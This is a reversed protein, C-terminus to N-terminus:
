LGGVPKAAVQADFTGAIVTTNGPLSAALDRGAITNTTIVAQVPSAPDKAIADVMAVKAADTKVLQQWIGEMVGGIAVGIAVQTATDLFNSLWPWRAIAYVIVASVGKRTWGGIKDPGIFPALMSLM